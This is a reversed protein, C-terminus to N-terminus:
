RSRASGSRMSKCLVTKLVSAWGSFRSARGIEPFIFQNEAEARAGSSAHRKGREPPVGEGRAMPSHCATADAHNAPPSNQVTADEQLCVVQRPSKPPPDAPYRRTPWSTAHIYRFAFWSSDVCKSRFYKPPLPGPISRDCPAHPRSGTALLPHFRLTNM